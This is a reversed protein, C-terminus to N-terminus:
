LVELRVNAAGAGGSTTLAVLEVYVRGYGVTIIQDLTTVRAITSGTTVPLTDQMPGVAWGGADPDYFWWQLYGTAITAGGNNTDVTARAGKAGTLSLGDTAATPKNAGFAAANYGQTTAGAPGVLAATVATGSGGEIDDICDVDPQMLFAIRITGATPSGSPIRFTVNSFRGYIRTGPVILVEGGSDFSCLLTAGAFSGAGRVVLGWAAIPMQLYGPSTFRTDALSISQELFGGRINIPKQATNMSTAANAVNDSVSGVSDLDGRIRALGEAMDNRAIKTM